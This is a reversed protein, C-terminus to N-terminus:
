EGARRRAGRLSVFALCVVKSYVSVAGHSAGTLMEGVARLFCGSMVALSLCLRGAVSFHKASYRLLSRYWFLQRTRRTLSNASHGGKHRAAAGPVFLIRYGALRLRLCFDVDEFWVPHFGEDFGGIAKWASRRVMLFAGAPQDVDSTRDLPVKCRYKRNVPNSPWLRNLGLSEFALVAATPFSRVHFGTQPNGEEDILQGGAAGIDPDSVAAALLEVGRLPVADPNLILVAPSDLAEIGQNAASAFGRNSPNAILRVAPRRRVATITADESANDVVVVAATPARSCADLCEGIVDASNYTIVVIGISSM